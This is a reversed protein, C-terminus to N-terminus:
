VTERSRGALRPLRGAPRAAPLQPGYPYAYTYRRHRPDSRNFVYGLVPTGVFALREHLDELVRIPTGHRVVLVIGDAQAALASTDSVALLPPSDLVLLDASERVRAMASRFAGTRWFGSGDPLLRGAPIVPVDTAGPVSMASTVYPLPVDASTLDSLGPEAPVGTLATLGRQRADGDVLVVRRGDAAAAIGLNVATATKGDSPGASTILVTNGGNAELAFGLADVLFRYAEAVVSHPADSAPTGTPVGCKAFDPIEALLPAKLVAAPDHRSTATPHHVARWRALVAAALFGLLGTVFAAGLPRPRSPVAPDAARDFLSVGDGYLTADALVSDARGELTLLQSVAASRQSNYGDDAGRSRSSGVAGELNRIRARLTKSLRAMEAATAEAKARNEQVSVERFATGVANALDVAGRSTSDTATVTLLDLEKAPTVTVKGGIQGPSYRGDLLQAARQRVRASNALQARGRAFRAANDVDAQRVEEFLTTTSRPDKLLLGASSQYTTPQSQAFFLGVLGGLLTCATIALKYRWLLDLLNLPAPSGPETRDM